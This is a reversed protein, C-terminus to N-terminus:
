DSLKGSTLKNVAKQIGRGRKNALLNSSKPFAPDHKKETDVLKEHRSRNVRDSQGRELFKTRAAVTKPHSRAIEANSYHKDRDARAKQIYNGLLKGSVEDLAEFDETQMFEELEDISFDELSLDETEEKTLRKVASRIGYTRNDQKDAIKDNAKNLRSRGDDIANRTERDDSTHSALRLAEDSANNKGRKRELNMKSSAAKSIYSGLTKKSLEDLQEYDEAEEFLSEALEEKKSEIAEALKEAMLKDFLASITSADGQEIAEILQKISM